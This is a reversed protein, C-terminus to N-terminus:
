GLSVMGPRGGARTILEHDGRGRVESTARSACRDASLRDPADAGALARYRRVAGRGRREARGATLLEELAAEIEAESYPRGADGAGTHWLVRSLSAASLPPMGTEALLLRLCAEALPSLTGGPADIDCTRIEPDQTGGPAPSITSRPGVHRARHPWHLPLDAQTPATRRVM